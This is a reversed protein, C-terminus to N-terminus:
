THPVWVPAYTSRCSAVARRRRTCLSRHWGAPSPSDRARCGSWPRGWSGTRFCGSGASRSVADSTARREASAAVVCLLAVCPPVATVALVGALLYGGVPGVTVTPRPVVRDSLMAGALVLGAVAGALPAGAALLLHGVPVDLHDTLASLLVVAASSEAAALYRERYPPGCAAALRAAVVWSVAAYAPSSWWNVIPLAPALVRVPDYIGTRTAVVAAM